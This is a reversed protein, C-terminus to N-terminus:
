PEQQAVFAAMRKRAVGERARQEAAARAAAVEERAEDSAMSWAKQPAWRGRVGRAASARAAAKAARRKERLRAWAARAHPHDRDRLIERRLHHIRGGRWEITEELAFEHGNGMGGYWKAGLPRWDGIIVTQTVLPAASPHYGALAQPELPAGMAPPTDAAGAAGAAGAARASSPNIHRTRGIHLVHGRTRAVSPLLERLM